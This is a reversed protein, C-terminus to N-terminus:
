EQIRDFNKDFYDVKQEGNELFKIAKITDNILKISEYEFPLIVEKHNKIIGYKFSETNWFVDFNPPIFNYQYFQNEFLKMVKGSKIDVWFQSQISGEMFYGNGQVTIDKYKAPFIIKGNKNCLGYKFTSQNIFPILPNNDIEFNSSIGYNYDDPNYYVTKNKELLKNKTAVYFEIKEFENPFSLYVYQKDSFLFDGLIKNIERKYSQNPKPNINKLQKVISFLRNKIDIQEQTITSLYQKIEDKNKANKLHTFTSKLDQMSKKIRPNLEVFDRGSVRESNMRLGNKTYSQIAVIKDMLKTPIVLSVSNIKNLEDVLISDNKYVTKKANIDLIFSNIELPVSLQIDVNISDIRKLGIEKETIEKGQFYFTNKKLKIASFGEITNVYNPNQEDLCLGCSFDFKSGSDEKDSIQFFQEYFLNNQYTKFGTEVSDINYKLVFEPVSKKVESIKHDFPSSEMYQFASIKVLSDTILRDEELQIKLETLNKSLLNSIYQARDTADRLGSQCSSLFPLALLISIIIRM